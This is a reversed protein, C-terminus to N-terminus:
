SYLIRFLMHNLTTNDRMFVSFVSLFYTIQIRSQMTRHNLALFLSYTCNLLKAPLRYATYLNVRESLQLRKYEVFAKYINQRNLTKQGLVQDKKGKKKTSYKKEKGRTASKFLQVQIAPFNYTGTGPFFLASVKILRSSIRVSESLACVLYDTNNLSPPTGGHAM